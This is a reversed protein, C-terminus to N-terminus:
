VVSFIKLKEVYSTLQGHLNGSDAAQRKRKLKELQVQADMLMNMRKFELDKMFEMRQKELEMIQQQKSSEIREYAEGFKLIARALERYGAGGSFDVAQARHQKRAMSGVGEDEDNDDDGGFSSETSKSGAAYLNPNVGPKHRSSNVTFTVSPPKKAVGILSDLRHFFPWKSPAPKGKELKYKKKLTDIRNKCQVDTKLRVIGDYRSSNVADAVEKWDKQRLNGRNLKM